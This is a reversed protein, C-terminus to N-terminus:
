AYNILAIGAFAIVLWLAISSIANMRLTGWEPATVAPNVRLKKEVALMRAGNALLIAVLVMKVWFIWSGWYTEIDTTFMIVGSVITVVLGTVVTTHLMALEALHHERNTDTWRHARLTNRDTAIAIGGAVVLGGAHIFMFITETLKSDSYWKNWPQFFNVLAEPPAILM